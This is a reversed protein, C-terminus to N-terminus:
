HADVWKAEVEFRYGGERALEHKTLYVETLSGKEALYAVYDAMQAPGDAHAVLRLVDGQGTTELSLLGVKMGQVPHITRFVAAWPRNLIAIYRNLARAQEAFVKEQQPSLAPKHRVQQRAAQGSAAKLLSFSSRQDIYHLASWGAVVLAALLAVVAVAHTRRVGGALDLRIARASM